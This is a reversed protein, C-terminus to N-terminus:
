HNITGNELVKIVLNKLESNEKILMMILQKDTPEDNSLITNTPQQTLDCKKKHRWLSQRCIYKKGCICIFDSTTGSHNIMQITPQIDASNHRMTYDMTAKIHKATLM